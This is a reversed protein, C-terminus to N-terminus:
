REEIGTSAPPNNKAERAREEFEAQTRATWQELTEKELRAMNRAITAPDRERM